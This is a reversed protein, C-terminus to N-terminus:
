TLRGIRCPSCDFFADPTSPKETFQPSHRSVDICYENRLWRRLLKMTTITQNATMRDPQADASRNKLSVPYVAWGVKQKRVADERVKASQNNRSFNLAPLTLGWTPLCRCIWNPWSKESVPRPRPCDANMPPQFRATAKLAALFASGGIFASSRLHTRATRM